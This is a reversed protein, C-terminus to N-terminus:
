WDIEADKISNIQQRNREADEIKRRAIRAKVSLDSVIDGIKFTMADRFPKSDRGFMESVIAQIIADNGKCNGINITIPKSKDREVFMAEGQQKDGRRRNNWFFSATMKQGDHSLTLVRYNLSHGSDPGFKHALTHGEESENSIVPISPLLEVPENEAVIDRLQTMLCSAILGLKNKFDDKDATSFTCVKANDPYLPAFHVKNRGAYWWAADLNMEELASIASDLVCSKVAVVVPLKFYLDEKLRHNRIQHVGESVPPLIRVVDGIMALGRDTKKLAASSKVM